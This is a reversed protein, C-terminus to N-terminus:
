KIRCKHKEITILKTRTYVWEWTKVGRELGTQYISYPLSIQDRLSGQMVENAWHEGLKHILPHNRRAMLGTEYLGNKVPYDENLYKIGHRQVTQPDDKCLEVVRKCEKYVCDRDPHKTTVMACTELSELILAIAGKRLQQNADHYIWEDYDPMLEWPKIKAMRQMRQPSLDTWNDIVKTTWGEVQLDPEDTFLFYDCNPHSDIVPRVTDYKGTCVTYIATM